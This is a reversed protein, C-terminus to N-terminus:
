WIGKKIWGSGKVVCIEVAFHFFLIDRWQSKKQSHRRLDQLFEQSNQQYQVDDDYESEMIYDDTDTGDIDLDIIMHEYYKIPHIEKTKTWEQYKPTDKKVEVKSTNKCM